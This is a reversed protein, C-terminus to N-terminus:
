LALALSSLTWFQAWSLWRHAVVPVFGVDCRTFVSGIAGGVVERVIVRESSSSFEIRSLYSTSNIALYPWYMESGYIAILSPWILNATMSFSALRGSLTWIWGVSSSFPSNM